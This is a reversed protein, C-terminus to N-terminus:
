DASAPRCNRQHRGGGGSKQKQKSICIVHLLLTEIPFNDHSPTPLLALDM